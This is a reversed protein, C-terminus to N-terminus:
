NTNKYHSRRRSVFLHNGTKIKAQKKANTALATVEHYSMRTSVEPNVVGIALSLLTFFSQDGRRDKCWVGQQLIEEKSYFKLTLDKFNKLINECKSQWDDSRYVVVFDDGGVHGVMDFVSNSNDVLITALLKIIEDGSNYGFHDNFPKFHNIDFYALHFEQQNIIFDEIHEYIPINGPLLTLPNSHRARQIKAETLIKLLTGVRGVGCYKNDKTIIFDNNLNNLINCTIKESVQNLSEEHDVVIPNSDMFEIITKKGYLPYSYRDSFLEGIRDRSIVGLPKDNEVIPLCHLSPNDKFLNNVEAASRTAYIPTVYEIMSGVTEAHRVRSIHEVKSILPFCENNEFRHSPKAEPRHLLYGQGLRIGIANIIDLEQRTEIGEAIVRCRLGLSIEVISRTFERKVSNSNIGDIFHRDIKVFEPTIEAWSILGSYGAGLDDIAILAGHQRLVKIYEKLEVLNHLPYKESIEFVIGKLAEQTEYIPLYPIIKGINIPLINVFLLGPLKQTKFNKIASLVCFRDLELLYGQSEAMAFLQDPPIHLISPATRILSEFAFYDETHFDMLGQFHPTVLEEEIITAICQQNQMFYLFGYTIACAPM